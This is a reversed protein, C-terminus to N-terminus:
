KGKKFPNRKRAVMEQQEYLPRIKATPANEDATRIIKFPDVEQGTIAPDVPGHLVRFRELEIESSPFIFGCSALWEVSQDQITNEKSQSM